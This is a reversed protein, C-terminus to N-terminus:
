QDLSRDHEIPQDGGGPKVVWKRTKNKALKKWCGDLIQQVSFGARHAADMTLFVCDVYEELDDPKSLVEGVEKQLHLLAGRPGRQAALGFTNQSWEWKQRDFEEFSAANAEELIKQIALVQDLTLSRLLMQIKQTTEDINKMLIKSLHIRLPPM